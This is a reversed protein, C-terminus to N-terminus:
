DAPTSFPFLQRTRIAQLWLSDCWRLQIGVALGISIGM